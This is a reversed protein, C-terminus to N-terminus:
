NELILVSYKLILFIYKFILWGLTKEETIVYFWFYTLGSYIM